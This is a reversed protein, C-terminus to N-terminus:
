KYGDIFQKKSKEDMIFLDNEIVWKRFEKDKKRQISPTNLLPANPNEIPKTKNVYDDYSSYKVPQPQPQPQECSSAFIIAAIAVVFMAIYCMNIKTRLIKDQKEM